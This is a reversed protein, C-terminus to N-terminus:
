MLRLLLWGDAVWFNQGADFFISSSAEAAACCFLPSRNKKDFLISKLAHSFPIEEEGVHILFQINGLIGVGGLIMSRSDRSHSARFYDLGRMERVGLHTIIGKESINKTRFIYPPFSSTTYTTNREGIQSIRGERNNPPSAFSELKLREETVKWSFLNLASYGNSNTYFWVFLTTCLHRM